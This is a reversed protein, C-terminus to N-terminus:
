RRRAPRRKRARIIRQQVGPPQAIARFHVGLTMAKFAVAGRSRGLASGCEKASFRQRAYQRLRRIDARTWERAHNKNTKPM